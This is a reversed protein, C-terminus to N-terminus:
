VAAVVPKLRVRVVGSHHAGHKVTFLAFTRLTMGGFIGRFRDLEDETRRRIAQKLAEASTLMEEELQKKLEPRPPAGKQYNGYAYHVPRNTARLDEIRLDPKGPRGLLGLFWAPAAIWLAFYRNTRAIHKMNKAITWGEPYAPATLLEDPVERLLAVIAGYVADIQQCMEERTSCSTVDPIQSVSSLLLDPPTKCLM